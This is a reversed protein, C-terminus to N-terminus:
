HEVGGFETQIDVKFVDNDCSLYISNKSHLDVSLIKKIKHLGTGGERRTYDREEWTSLQETIDNIHSALVSGPKVQNTVSLIVSDNERKASIKASVGTTIGSHKMVNDLLIIFIDVVNRLTRGQLVISKDIDDYNCSLAFSPHSHQFTQYSLQAALSFDYDMFDDPQTTHFWKSINKLEASIDTRAKAINDRLGQFNFTVQYAQLDTELDHLMKQFTDNIDRELLDRVKDLCLNTIDIMTDLIYTEFEQYHDIEYIDADISALLNQDVSFDFLGNSHKNETRIQILENKIYAIQTDVKESFAAFISDIAQQEEQQVRKGTSWYQNPNYSGDVSKTTILHHKEFCSRLQSELTGHRIRVSLTGDLGYKNDATFIDRSKKVIDELMNTKKRPNVVCVPDASANSVSNLIAFIYENLNIKKYELYREFLECVEQSLLTRLAEIDIYVKGNDIEHKALRVLLTNTHRRIEEIYRISNAEDREVLAECIINRERLIDDESEFAISRAMVNPVCVEALFRNLVDANIEEPPNLLLDSPKAVGCADLYEEYCTSLVIDDMDNHNPYYNFYISCIIPTLISGTVNQEGSKIGEFISDMAGVYVFNSNECFAPVFVEIASMLNNMHLYARVRLADVELRIYSGPPIENGLQNLIELAKVTDKGILLKARYRKQRVDDLPLEEVTDLCNTRIAIALRTSVSNRYIESTSELFAPLFSIDFDFLRDPTTIAAYMDATNTSELVMLRSAFKSLILLLEQAWNAYPHVYLLKLLDTQVDRGDGTRSFLQTLKRAILDLPTRELSPSIYEPINICCKAYLEILSFYGVKESLLEKALQASTDYKGASYLDFAECIRNNDADYFYSYGHKHQFAINGLFPDPILRSLRDIYPFFLNRLEDAEQSFVNAVIHRFLLYRDILNYKDEIYLFAGMEKKDTLWTAEDISLFNGSAKLLVYRCILPSIGNKEFREYDQDITRLFTGVSLNRECQRSYCYILYADVSGEQMEDLVSDTYKKQADLGEKESLVVIQNKIEWFSRGFQNRSINLLDLCHDYQGNLFAFEFEEQLKIFDCLKQEEACLSLTYWILTRELNPFCPMNGCKGMEAISAPFCKGVITQRFYADQLLEDSYKKIIEIPASEFFTIAGRMPNKSSFIRQKIRRFEQKNRSM